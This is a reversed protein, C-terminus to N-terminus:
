ESTSLDEITQGPGLVLKFGLKRVARQIRRTCPLLVFNWYVMGAAFALLWVGAAVSAFLNSSHETFVAGAESVFANEVEGHRRELAVRSLLIVRSLDQPQYGQKGFEEKLTDPFGENIERYKEQVIARLAGEPAFATQSVLWGMVLVILSVVLFLLVRLSFEKAVYLYPWSSNMEDLLEQAPDHARLAALCTIGSSQPPIRKLLNSYKDRYGEEYTDGFLQVAPKNQTLHTAVVCDIAKRFVDIFNRRPTLLPATELDEQTSEFDTTAIRFWVAFAGIFALLAVGLIGHDLIDGPSM